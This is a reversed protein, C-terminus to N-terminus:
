QKEFAEAVLAAIKRRLAAMEADALEPTSWRALRRTHRFHRRDTQRKIFLMRQRRVERTHEEDLQTHLDIGVHDAGILARLAAAQVADDVYQQVDGAYGRRITDVVNASFTITIKGM